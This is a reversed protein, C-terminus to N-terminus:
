KQCGISTRGTIFFNKKGKSFWPFFPESRERAENNSTYTCRPNQRPPSVGAKAGRIDTTVLSPPLDLGYIIYSVATSGLSVGFISARLFFVSPDYEIFWCCMKGDPVRHRVAAALPLVTVQLLLLVAPYCCLLLLLFVHCAYVFVYM